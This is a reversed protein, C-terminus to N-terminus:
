LEYIMFISEYEDLDIDFKIVYNQNILGINISKTKYDVTYLIPEYSRFSYSIWGNSKNTFINKITIQDDNLKIISVNNSLRDFIYKENSSKDYIAFNTDIINKNQFKELISEHYIEFISENNLLFFHNDIKLIKQFINLTSLDIKKVRIQDKYINLFDLGLVYYYSNDIAFDVVPFDITLCTVDDCIKGEYKENNYGLNEYYFMKDNFFHILNIDKNSIKKTELNQSNTQYLGGPGYSYIYKDNISSYSVDGNDIFKDEKILVGQSNYYLFKNIVKNSDVSSVQFFYLYDNNQFTLSSVILIIVM